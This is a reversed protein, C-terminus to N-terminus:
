QLQLPYYYINREISFFDNQIIAIRQKLTPQSAKPPNFKYQAIDNLHEGSADPHHLRSIVTTPSGITTTCNYRNCFFVAPCWLLALLQFRSTSQAALYHLFKKSYFFAMLGLKQNVINKLNCYPVDM